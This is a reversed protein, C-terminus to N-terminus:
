VKARKEGTFGDRKDLADRVKVPAFETRRAKEDALRWRTIAARDTRCYDLLFATELVDRLILASNQGYGSLALKLSAAFANFLRMGLMQVVKLDEDDTPVQCLLDAIDMAQEVVTVHLSLGSDAAIFSLAERRLAEERDHLRSLNDPLPERM